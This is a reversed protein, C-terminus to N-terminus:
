FILGLVHILFVVALSWVIILLRIKSIKSNIKESPNIITCYMCKGHRHETMYGCESCFSTHKLSSM